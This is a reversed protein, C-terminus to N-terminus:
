NGVLDTLFPNKIFGHLLLIRQYLYLPMININFLSGM